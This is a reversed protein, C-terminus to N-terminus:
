IKRWEKIISKRKEEWDSVSSTTGNNMDYRKIQYLRLSLLFDCDVWSVFYVFNDIIKIRNYGSWPFKNGSRSAHYRKLHDFCYIM